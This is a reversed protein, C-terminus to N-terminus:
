SETEGARVRFSVSLHMDDGLDDWDKSNEHRAPLPPDRGGHDERPTTLM